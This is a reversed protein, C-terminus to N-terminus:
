DRPSSSDVAPRGADSFRAAPITIRIEHVRGIDFVRAYDPRADRRHTAEQWGAPRPSSAVQTAATATDFLAGPFPRAGIAAALLLLGASTRAIWM